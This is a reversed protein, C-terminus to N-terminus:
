EFFEPLEVRKIAGKPWPYGKRAEELSERAKIAKAKREKYYQDVNPKWRYETPVPNNFRDITYIPYSKIGKERGTTADPVVMIKEPNLGFKKAQKRMDKRLYKVPLGTVREPSYAFIQDKDNIESSSFVRSVHRFALEEAMDIDGNTHKYYEVELANYSAALSSPTEPAGFPGISVDFLDSADMQSELRKLAPDERTLQHYAGTLVIKEEPSKAANNRAVEVAEDLPVGGRYLSSVTGYIANQKTGVNELSLPSKRELIEFANAIKLVREPKGLFALRRFEDEMLDPMINTKAALEIGLDFTPNKEYYTNVAKNHNTNKNNLPENNLLSWEVLGVLEANKKRKNAYNDAAVMLDARRSETIVDPYNNYAKDIQVLGAEGKNVALKLDGYVKGREHAMKADREATSTSLANQLDKIAAERENGTLPGTYGDSVMNELVSSILLPDNSYKVREITGIEAQTRANTKLTDKETDSFMTASEIMDEASQYNGKNAIGMVEQTFSKRQITNAEITSKVTFNNITSASKDRFANNFTRYATNSLTAKAKGDLDIARERLMNPRKLPDPEVSAQAEAEAMAAVSVGYAQVAKDKEIGEYIGALTDTVEAATNLSAISTQMNKVPTWPNIPTLPKVAASYQINPFKM